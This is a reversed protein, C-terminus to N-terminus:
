DQVLQEERQQEQENFGNQEEADQGEQPLQGGEAGRPLLPPPILGENISNHYAELPKGEVWTQYILAWYLPETSENRARYLLFYRALTPVMEPPYTPAFKHIWLMQTAEDVTPWPIDPARYIEREFALCGMVISADDGPWDTPVWVGSTDSTRNYKVYNQVSRLTPSEEPSDKLRSLMEEYINTANWHPRETLLEDLLNTVHRSMNWRKKREAGGGRVKTVGVTKKSTSVKQM